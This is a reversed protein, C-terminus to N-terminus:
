GTRRMRALLSVFRDIAESWEAVNADRLARSRFPRENLSLRTRGAEEGFYISVLSENGRGSDDEWVFTFVLREPPLIERFVGKQRLERGDITRLRGSWAGGVRFEIQVHTAPTDAPGWWALAMRPDCWTRFVFDRPADILREIVLERDTIPTRALMENEGQPL